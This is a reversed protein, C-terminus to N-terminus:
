MLLLFFKRIILRELVEASNANEEAKRKAMTEEMKKAAAEQKAMKEALLRAEEEEKAKQEAAAKEAMQKEYEEKLKGFAEVIRANQQEQKEAANLEEGGGDEIASGHVANWVTEEITLNNEVPSIMAIKGSLGTDSQWIDVDNNLSERLAVQEIVPKEFAYEVDISATLKLVGVENLERAIRRMEYTIRSHIQQCVPYWQSKPVVSLAHRCTACARLLFPGKNKLQILPLMYNYVRSVGTLVLDSGITPRSKSSGVGSGDDETATTCAVEIAILLRQLTQLTEVQQGVLSKKLVLYM